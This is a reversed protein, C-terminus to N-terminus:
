NLQIESQGLDRNEIAFAKCRGLLFILKINSAAKTLEVKTKSIGEEEFKSIDANGAM